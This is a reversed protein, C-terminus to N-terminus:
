VSLQKSFFTEQFLEVLRAKVQCILAMIQLQAM